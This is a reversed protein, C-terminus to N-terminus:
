SRDGKRNRRLVLVTLEFPLPREIRLSKHTAPRSPPMVFNDESALVRPSM